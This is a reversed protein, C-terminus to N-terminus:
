SADKTEVKHKPFIITIKTGGGLKSDIFFKLEMLELLSKILPLGLGVSKVNIASAKHAVEYKNMSKNLGEESMGYGKDEFYMFMEGKYMKVDIKLTSHDPSYKMANSIINNFIQSLRKGDTKINPLNRQFKTEVLIKDNYNISNVKVSRLLLDRVDVITEQIDFNGKQMKMNDLLDEIFILLEKGSQNINNIYELYRTNIPGLLRNSMMESSSVIFSLPSRLEHATYALFDNKSQLAKIAIVKSIEAKDRLIKERRYIFVIIMVSVLAFIFVEIVRYLIDKRFSKIFNKNHYQLYVVFPYNPLKQLYVSNGEFMLNIESFHMLGGFTINKSEIFKKLNRANIKNDRSDEASIYQSVIEFNQNLLAFSINPDKMKKGLDEGLNVLDFGITLAGLYKGNNDVAGIMAPIIHRQSTFGFIDNGLHIKGPDESAKQIYDRLHYNEKVATGSISDVRKVNQDDIWSFVTWSLVNNLHPNVSYKNIINEIHHLDKPRSKIQMLIVKMVFETHKVVDSFSREVREAESSLKTSLNTYNTYYEEIIFYMLMFVATCIMALFPMFYPHPLKISRLLGKFIPAKM